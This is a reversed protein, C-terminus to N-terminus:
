EVMVTEELTPSIIAPKRSRGLKIITWGLCGLLGTQFLIWVVLSVLNAWGLGVFDISIEHSGPPVQLGTMTYSWHHLGTYEVKKGDLRVELLHPYYLVPLQVMRPFNDAITINGVTTSGEQHFLSQIQTVPILTQQPSLHTFMLSAPSVAAAGVPEVQFKLNFTKSNLVAKDLSAEWTLAGSKLSTQDVVNGDVLMNLRASQINAAFTVSGKLLVKPKEGNPWTPITYGTTAFTPTTYGTLPEGLDAAFEQNGYVPSVKPDYFLYASKGYGIDPGQVIADVTVEFPKLAPLYSSSALGIVLVGLVFHIPELRRILLGLAYPVLLAGVWVVQALLRYPFQAIQIQKPLLAWFDVPSWTSFFTLVFLVLLAPVYRGTRRLNVPWSGTRGKAFYYYLVVAWAALMPWGVAPHLGPSEIFGPWPPVSSPSLLGSIPTIRNWLFPDPLGQQIYLNDQELLLPGLYYLGLGWGILYSLGVRISRFWTKRHHLRPLGLMVILMAVFCSAYVFTITHAALLLFWSFGSLLLALLSRKAYCRLTYYLVVPLVGQGVTEALAGRGHINILFYPAAMYTMGALAAGIRSRTLWFSARYTFFAGLVLSMWTLILYTVYPNEPTLYKYILAGVTDPLQGYYQFTPYRWGTHQWPGVRIPFQGEEMAMKAQIILAVHAPIDFIKPLIKDSSASPALLGLAALSYVILLLFAQRGAAIKRGTLRLLKGSGLLLHSNHDLIYGWLSRRQGPASPTLTLATLGFAAILYILGWLWFPQVRNDLNGVRLYLGLILFTVGAGAVLAAMAVPYSWRWRNWRTSLQSGLAILALLPLLWWLWSRKGLTDWAGHTDVQISKIMTGLVRGDNATPAFREAVLIINLTAKPQPTNLNLTISQFEAGKLPPNLEGTTVGNVLVQVPANPGGAVAASRINFTVKFSRSTQINLLLSARSRTWSYRNGADDVQPAFFGQAQGNEIGTSLQDALYTYELKPQNLQFWGFILVAVIWVLLTLLLKIYYFRM